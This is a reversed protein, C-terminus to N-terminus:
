TRRASGRRASHLGGPGRARGDAPEDCWVHTVQAGPIGLNEPPEAALYQPIAPFGCDAMAAADYRGNIIASWSFPHGNGDVMGLMALRIHQPDPVLSM